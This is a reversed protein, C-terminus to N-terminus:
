VLQAKSAEIREIQRSSRIICSNFLAVRARTEFVISPPLTPPLANPPFRTEIMETPRFSVNRKNKKISRNTDREKEQVIRYAPDFIFRHMKSNRFKERFARTLIKPLFLLNFERYFIKTKFMKLKRHLNKRGGSDFEEVKRLNKSFTEIEDRNWRFDVRPVDEIPEIDTCTNRRRYIRPRLFPPSIQGRTRNRQPASPNTPRNAPPIPTPPLADRIVDQRAANAKGHVNRPGQEALFNFSSRSAFDNRRVTCFFFGAEIVFGM